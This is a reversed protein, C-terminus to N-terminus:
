RRGAFEKLLTNFQQQLKNSEKLLAGINKTGTSLDQISTIHSGINNAYETQNEAFMMQNQQIGGLMELVFGPTYTPAGQIAPIDKLGNFWNTVKLNDTMATDHHVTEAENMNYSNDILFWLGKGTRVELKEEAENYQKALANYILAYHQATVKFKYDTGIQFSTHLLREIHKIIGLHTALATNKADIAQEAFYSAKDYIIISKNLLWVKRDKVIIRQGEGGIRLHKYPINHATLYQTRKENNWNRLGQPIQFRTRFAHARVADQQFRTLNAQAFTRVQKPTKPTAVRSLTRVKTKCTEPLDIWDWTGYGSKVIRGEVKLKNLHYQLTNKPIDLKACIKAPNMGAKLLSVMSLYWDSDNTSPTNNPTDINTSRKTSTQPTAPM